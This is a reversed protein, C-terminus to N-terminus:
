SSLCTQKTKELLDLANGTAEGLATNDFICWNEVTSENSRMAKTVVDLAEARYASYYIKPSGHLRRYVLEPWGGPVDAQPVPAPDAAVRAVRFRVLTADAEDTFWSVHRPECVIFGEFRARLNDFFAGVVANDYRLSPPLQVLLPGLRNGLAQIEGLFRDLPEAGDVLRRTHTIDKPM